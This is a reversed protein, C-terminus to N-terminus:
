SMGRVGGIRLRDRRWSRQCAPRGLLQDTTRQVARESRATETSLATKPQTAAIPGIPPLIRFGNASSVSVKGVLAVARAGRLFGVATVGTLCRTHRGSGSCSDWPFASKETLEGVPPRTAVCAPDIAAVVTTVELRLLGVRRRGRAPVRRAGAVGLVGDHSHGCIAKRTAERSKLLERALKLIAVEQEPERIRRRAASLEAQEARNTGPLQGTDILEQTRWVYITQDSIGLDAAVQAVPPGAAVWDRCRAVSGRPIVGRYSCSEKSPTTVLFDLLGVGDCRPFM